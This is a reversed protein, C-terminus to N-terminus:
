TQAAPDGPPGNGMWYYNEKENQLIQSRTVPIVVFRYLVRDIFPMDYIDLIAKMITASNFRSDHACDFLFRVYGQPQFRNAAAALYIRPGENATGRVTATHCAACNVGVRDMGVKEKTFGIPLEKGMEWTAGLAM